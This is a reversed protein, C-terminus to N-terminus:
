NQRYTHKGTQTDRQGGIQEDKHREPNRGTTKRDKQGDTNGDTKKIKSNTKHTIM